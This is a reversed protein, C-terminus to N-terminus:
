ANCDYNNCAKLFEFCFYFIEEKRELRNCLWHGFFYWDYAITLFLLQQGDLSRHIEGDQFPMMAAIVDDSCRVAWLSIRLLSIFLPTRDWGSICHVLLGGARTLFIIRTRRLM